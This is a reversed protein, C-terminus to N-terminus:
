ILNSLKNLISTAVKRAELNHINNDHGDRAIRDITSVTESLSDNIVFSFKENALGMEINRKATVLRNHLEESSITERGKFRAQWTDFDPPLVFITIVDPKLSIVNLAGGMEVENIVVKGAENAKELERVSIGSVQQGHIVEAEVFEGARLDELFDDESRFFYQVGNVEMKGDRFKPPRTTDSVLFLYNGTKVLENIITNRGGGALGVLLVLKTDKLVKKAHESIKYNKLIEEFEAKHDLQM